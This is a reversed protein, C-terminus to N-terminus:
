ELQFPERLPVFPTPKGSDYVVHWYKPPRDAPQHKECKMSPVVQWRGDVLSLHAPRCHSCPPSQSPPLMVLAASLCVPCTCAPQHPLRLYRSPIM